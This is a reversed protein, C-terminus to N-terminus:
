WGFGLGDGGGEEGQAQFQAADRAGDEAAVVIHVVRQLFGEQPCPLCGRARFVSAGAAEHKRGQAVHAEVHEPASMWAGVDAQLGFAGVLWEVGDVM